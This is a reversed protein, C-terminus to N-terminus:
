VEKCTSGKCPSGDESQSDHGVDGCGNHHLQQTNGNRVELLQLTFSLTSSPLDVLNGPVQCTAM